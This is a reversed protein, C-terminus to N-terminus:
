DDERLLICVFDQRQEDSMQNWDMGRAAARAQLQEEAYATNRQWAAPADKALEYLLLRRREAPLTGIIDLVHKEEDTLAVM